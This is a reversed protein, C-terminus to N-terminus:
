YDFKHIVDNKKQKFYKMGNMTRTKLLDIQSKGYEYTFENHQEYKLGCFVKQIIYFAFSFSMEFEAVKIQFTLQMMVYWSLEFAKFEYYLDIKYKDKFYLHLKFGVKGSGLIGILGVNFSLRVPSNLSPTYVGVDVTVGVSTEGSIEINFSSEKIKTLDLEPGVGVCIESKISPIISFALELYPLLKIPFVFKNLKFKFLSFCLNIMLNCSKSELSCMGGVSLGLKLTEVKKKMNEWTMENGEGDFYSFFHNKIDDFVIEGKFFDTIVGKKADEFMKNLFNNSYEEKGGFIDLQKVYQISKENKKIIFKPQDPFDGKIPDEIVDTETYKEKKGSLLRKINNWIRNDEDGDIRQLKNQISQYLIQYYTNIKTYSVNFMIDILISSDKLTNIFKDKTNEIIKSYKNVYKSINNYQKFLRNEFINYSEETFITKFRVGVMEISRKLKFLFTNNIKDFFITSFRNIDKFEQNLYTKTFENLIAQMDLIFSNIDNETISGLTSNYEELNRLKKNKLKNIKVKDLDPINIGNLIYQKEKQELRRTNNYINDTNTENNLIEKENYCFSGFCPSDVYYLGNIYTYHILKNIYSKINKDLIDIYDFITENTYNIFPTINENMTELNLLDKVVLYYNPFNDIINFLENLLREEISNYQDKILVLPPELHEHIFESLIEFPKDSINLYYRNKQNNVLNTYNIILENLHTMDNPLPRTAKNNLITEINIKYKDVINYLNQVKTKILNNLKEEIKSIIINKMLHNSM